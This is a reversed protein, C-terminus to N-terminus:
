NKVSQIFLDLNGTAAAKDLNAQLWDNLTEVYDTQTRYLLFSANTLDVVNIVGAKYQAMKQEYADQAAQLQVPLKDLNQQATSIATEAQQLATHLALQQQQLGYDSAQLNYKNEALKDRKHVGNFLNYVFALGVGYNYRQYGLGNALSKYNGTYDISSGRGWFSAALLIKPLYSKKILKNTSVLLNKQSQYYAILPNVATDGAKAFLSDPNVDYLQQTTDINIDHNIGTLFSLQQQLQKVEGRRQNYSVQARSLEALALSSDVGPKIGSQTVAQIVEYISQYRSINQQDVALQYLNRLITFYTKSIRLKLLYLERALDSESLQENSIANNVRAKNLGFNVLEYEGYLMAMNGSAPQAINESRISGSTSMVGFPFYTGNVSNATALSVQDQIELAPLAAHKAQTINVRASNVLAQKQLISPLHRAASDTLDALRYTNGPSQAYLVNGTILWAMCIAVAGAKRNLFAM